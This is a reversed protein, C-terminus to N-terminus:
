IPSGGSGSISIRGAPFPSRGAPRPTVASGSAACIQEQLLTLLPSMQPAIRSWFSVATPATFLQVLAPVVQPEQTGSTVSRKFASSFRAPTLTLL